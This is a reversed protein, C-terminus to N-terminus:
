TDGIDPLVPVCYTIEDTAPQPWVAALADNVAVDVHVM